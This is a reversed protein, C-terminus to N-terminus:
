ILPRATYRALAYVSWLCLLLLLLFWLGLLLALWSCSSPWALFFFSLGLLLFFGLDLHDLILIDLPIRGWDSESQHSNRKVNSSPSSKTTDYLKAILDKKKDSETRPTRPKRPGQGPARVMRRRQHPLTDKLASSSGLVDQMSGCTKFLM